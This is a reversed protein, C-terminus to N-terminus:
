WKLIVKLFICLGVLNIMAKLVLGIENACSFDDVNKAGHERLWQKVGEPRSKSGRIAKVKEKM